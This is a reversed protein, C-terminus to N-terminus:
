EGPSADVGGCSYNKFESHVSSNAGINTNASIYICIYIQLKDILQLDKFLNLSRCNCFYSASTGDRVCVCM